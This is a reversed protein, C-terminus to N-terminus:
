VGKYAYFFSFELRARDPASVGNILYEIQNIGPQLQFFTSEPTLAPFISRYQGGRLLRVSKSGSNTNIFVEDGPLFAYSLGIHKATSVNFVAATSAAQYFLLHIVAGVSTDSANDVDTGKNPDIESIVVPSNEDISFPFTFLATVNNFDEVIEDISKFYPQPCIISIQAIEEENFPNCDAVEVRGEIAVDLKSNKYYFKCWNKTSFFRYLRLRNTDADGNIKIYIVINRTNLKSSNFLAGDMGAISTNNIQAPPPNLGQIELVQYVPEQGTLTLIEGLENEIKATYM